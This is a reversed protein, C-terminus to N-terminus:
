EFEVLLLGKAVAQNEEVHIKAIKGSIPSGYTNSMKMANFTLLPQGKEVNQGVKVVVSTITGPIYSFVQRQDPRSWGKRKKFKEPLTTSYTGDITTLEELIINNKNM